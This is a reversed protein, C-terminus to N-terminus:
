PERRASGIGRQGSSFFGVRSSGTSWIGRVGVGVDYVPAVFTTPRGEAPISAGEPFFDFSANCGEASVSISIKLKGGAASDRTDISHLTYNQFGCGPAVLTDSANGSSDAKTLV